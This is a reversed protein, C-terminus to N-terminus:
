ATEEEEEDDEEDSDQDAEERMEQIVEAIALVGSMVKGVEVQHQIGQKVINSSNVELGDLKKNITKVTALIEEGMAIPIGTANSNVVTAASSSAFASSNSLGNSQTTKPANASKKLAEREIKESTRQQGSLMLISVTERIVGSDEKISRIEKHIENQKNSIATLSAEIPKLISQVDIDASAPRGLMQKPQKQQQQQQQISEEVSQLRQKVISTQGSKPPPKPSSLSSSLSTTATASFTIETVSQDPRESETSQPNQHSGNLTNEIVIKLLGKLEEVNTSLLELRMSVDQCNPNQCSRPRGFSGPNARQKQSDSGPSQFDGDASTTFQNQPTGAPPFVGRPQRSLTREGHPSSPPRPSGSTYASTTKLAPITTTTANSQYKTSNVYLESLLLADPAAKEQESFDLGTGEQLFITLRDEKKNNKKSRSSRAPEKDQTATITPNVLRSSSPSSSGMMMMMAPHSMSKGHGSLHVPKNSSSSEVPSESDSNHDPSTYDISSLGPRANKKSMKDKNGRLLFGHHTKKTKEKSLSSSSSRELSEMKHQLAIVQAKLIDNESLQSKDEYMATAERLIIYLM